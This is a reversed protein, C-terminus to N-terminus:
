VKRGEGRQGVLSWAIQGWSGVEPEAGELGPEQSRWGGHGGQPDGFAGPKAGVKCQSDRHWSCGEELM